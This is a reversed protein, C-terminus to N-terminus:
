IIIKIKKPFNSFFKMTLKLIQSFRFCSDKKNKFVVDLENSEFVKYEGYRLTFQFIVEKNNTANIFKINFVCMYM